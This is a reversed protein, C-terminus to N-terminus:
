IPQLLRSSQTFGTINTLPSRLEYSMHHVFDNRLLLTLEISTLGSM